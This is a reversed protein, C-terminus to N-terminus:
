DKLTKVIRQALVFACLSFIIALHTSSPRPSLGRSRDCVGRWAQWNPRQPQLFVELGNKRNKPISHFIFM